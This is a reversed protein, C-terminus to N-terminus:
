NITKMKEVFKDYHEEDAFYDQYFIQDCYKIKEVLKRAENDFYEEYEKGVSPAKYLISNLSRAVIGEGSFFGYARSYMVSEEDDFISHGYYLNSYYNIGTLDLLTPAIDATCTYKDIVQHGLDSDYIMLPVKYLDTYYNDTNYDEIDKVYNSLQQYYSNHDGFMLITTNDLLGKEELDDMMIGLADDFEMVTTMYNMLVAEMENNEDKPTYVEKLKDMHEKLNEREYYIGHMTISTIYTYFRNDQSFMYDKCTNIMESDLNREGNTMYDHMTVDSAKGSQVLEDSIDYMDYSDTLKEFGFAAHTKERNYFSKFGDHFSRNVINGDTVLKLINPITQPMVNEEYDYDIYSDTPYSGLISITESIDTKEKSHFNSVVVSEDYFKYLNPFLYRYDEETLDLGNPYEDSKIFSFWEFSEVLIVIVNKDKSIGFKVTPESVEGYIFDEIQKSDMKETKNFILGKSFENIVNGIIGYSSYNSGQKKNLMKDYKDVKKSNNAYVTVSTMIIGTFILCIYIVREVNSYNVRRMRKVSRKAFIVFFICCFVATYFVVFNMPISELIGFADNRLELMGFDFYQGTMDYIVVFALDLIAQVVLLISCLIFRVLNNKILMVIGCLFLLLGLAILPNYIIPSGEVVLVTIMEIFIAFAFYVEVIKNINLWSKLIGREGDKQEKMNGRM